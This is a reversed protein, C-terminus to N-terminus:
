FLSNKVGRLLRDISSDIEQHLSNSVTSILRGIFRFPFVLIFLSLVAVCTLSFSLRFLALLLLTAVIIRSVSGILSSVFNAAGIANDNFLSTVESLRSSRNGFAWSVVRKRNINEFYLTSIAASYNLGLIFLGRLTGVFILTLLVYKLFINSSFNLPWSPPVFTALGLSALFGQICYAFAIEVLFLGISSLISVLGILLVRQGIFGKLLLVSNKVDSVKMNYTIKRLDYHYNILQKLGTM